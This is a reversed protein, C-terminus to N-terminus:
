LMEDEDEDNDLTRDLIKDRAHNFEIPYDTRLINNIRETSKRTTNLNNRIHKSVQEGREFRAQLYLLRSQTQDILQKLELSKANIQASTKAQYSLSESFDASEIAQKLSDFIYKSVDIMNDPSQEHPDIFNATNMATTQRLLDNTYEMNNQLIANASELMESTLTEDEADSEPPHTGSNGYPEEISSIDDESTTNEDNSTSSPSISLQSIIGETVPIAYNQSSVSPTQSHRINSNQDTSDDSYMM